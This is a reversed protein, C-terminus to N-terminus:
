ENSNMRLRVYLNELVQDQVINQVYDSMSLGVEDFLKWHVRQFVQTGIIDHLKLYVKDDVSNM